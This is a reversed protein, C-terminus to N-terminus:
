RDIWPREEAVESCWSTTLQLQPQRGPERCDSLAAISPTVIDKTVKKPKQRQLSSAPISLMSKRALHISFVLRQSLQEIDRIASCPIPAAYTISPATCDMILQTFLENSNFIENAETRGMREILIKM